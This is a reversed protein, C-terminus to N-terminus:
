AKMKNTRRRARLPLYESNPQSLTEKLSKTNHYKAVVKLRELEIVSPRDFGLSDKNIVSKMCHAYESAILDAAQAGICEKGVLACSEMRYQDRKIDHKMVQNFVRSFEGYGESGSEFLYPFREYVHNENAWKAVIVVLTQAAVSFATGLRRKDTASLARFDSSVVGSVFPQIGTSVISSALETRVSWRESPLKWRDERVKDFEGNGHECEKGSFYRLGNRDLIPQWLAYLREWLDMKGIFGAIVVSISGPDSLKGADDFYGRFIM